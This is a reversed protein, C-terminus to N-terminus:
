NLEKQHLKEITSEVGFHGVTANHVSQIKRYCDDPIRINKEERV